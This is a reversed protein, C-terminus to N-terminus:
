GADKPFRGKVSMCTMAISKLKAPIGFEGETALWKMIEDLQDTVPPYALQRKEKYTLAPLNSFDVDEPKLGLVAIEISRGSGDPAEVITGRFDDVYKWGDKGDYVVAKNELKAPAETFTADMPLLFEGETRPNAFARNSHTFELTYPHYNYVLPHEM